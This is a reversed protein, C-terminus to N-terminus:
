PRPPPHLGAAEDKKGQKELMVILCDRALAVLPNAPELIKQALTLARRYVEEADAYKKQRGLAYGLNCLAQIVKPHERLKTERIALAERYHTEAEGWQQLAGHIGALTNLTEAIPLQRDGPLNRLTNLARRLLPIAEAPRGLRYLGVALNNLATGVLPHREGFLREALSLTTRLVPEAERYDGKRILIESLTVQIQAVDEHTDGLFRTAQRSAERAATEAEDLRGDKDLVRALGNLSRAVDPHEAGLVRRQLALAQRLLAEAEKPQHRELLVAAVNRSAVAVDPHDEGQAKRVLSLAERQQAEAEELRGSQKLLDGLQSLTPALAPDARGLLQTRISLSERLLPEIEVFKGRHDLVWALNNLSHAIEIHVPGLFKRQQELAERHLTEAEALQGRRGLVLALDNLAVAVEPHAPGFVQRRGALAARQCREASEYAGLDTYILGLLNQLEAQVERQGALDREVRTATEDLIQRLLTTDQGRAKAPGAARLMDKLFSKVQRSKSAAIEASEKARETKRLQWLVGGFGTLATALLAGLLAAIAPRRRSWRVLRGAPGVPRARIPRNELFRGLEEALELANPYRRPPAKELCKLCITELDLPVEPSLQRPPVVEHDIVQLLVDEIGAAQFPPRGTLLHYLMAGLAYVDSPRGVTGHQAGIQEPPMYQPTGLMHNTKTLDSRGSGDALHKALGFDTIRTRGHWDILVNSPKLDRHLVGQEHAYHIAEAVSRVIEAARRPALPRDRVLRGLDEGAVLEMSFFHVGDAQGVEYVPVIGPHRLKGATRAEAQFREILTADFAPGSSRIVKLAVLRDLSRQRAQYVIGMGGRAIEREIEYDGFLLPAAQGSRPILPSPTKEELQGPVASDISLNDPDPFRSDTPQELAFQVLCRLCLADESATSFPAQCTPCRLSTQM